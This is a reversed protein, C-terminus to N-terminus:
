SDIKQSGADAADTAPIKFNPTGLPEVTTQTSVPLPNFSGSVATDVLAFGRTTSAVSLAKISWSEYRSGNADCNWAGALAVRLSSVFNTDARSTGLIKITVAVSSSPFWSTTHLWPRREDRSDVQDPALKVNEPLTGSCQFRRVRRAKASTRFEEWSM